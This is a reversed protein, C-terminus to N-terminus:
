GRRALNRLGRPHVKEVGKSNVETHVRHYVKSTCWCTANPSGHKVGVHCLCRERPRPCPCTRTGRTTCTSEGSDGDYSTCIERSPKFFRCPETREDAPIKPPCSKSRKGRPKRCYTDTCKHIMVRNTCDITSDDLSRSQQDRTPNPQGAKLGAMQAYTKRLVNDTPVACEEGGPRKAKVPQPHRGELRLKLAVFRAIKRCAQGSIEIGEEAATVELIAAACDNVTPVITPDDPAPDDPAPGDPAPGDPAPGDPAPGDTAPGDPAGDPRPAPADPANLRRRKNGDTALWFFGHVHDSGRGQFEKRYWFDRVGWYPKMVHDTFQQVRDDFVRSGITPFAKLSEARHSADRKQRVTDNPEIVKDLYKEHGPFHRHLDRWHMDAPSLTFFVTPMRITLCEMGYTLAKLEKRAYHWYQRTGRLCSGWRMVRQLVAEDENNIATQLDDLTLTEAGRRVFARSVSM